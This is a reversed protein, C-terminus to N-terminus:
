IRASCRIIQPVKFDSPFRGTLQRELVGLMIVSAIALDNSTLMDGQSAYIDADRHPVLEPAAVSM